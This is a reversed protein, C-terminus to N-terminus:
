SSHTDSSANSNSYHKTVRVAGASVFVRLNAQLKLPKKSTHTIKMAARQQTPTSVRMTWNSNKRLLSNADLDRRSVWLLPSTQIKKLRCTMLAAIVRLILRKGAIVRDIALFHQRNPRFVALTAKFSNKHVVTTMTMSLNRRLLVRVPHEARLVMVRVLVMLTAMEKVLVQLTAELNSTPPALSTLSSSSLQTLLRISKPKALGLRVTTAM